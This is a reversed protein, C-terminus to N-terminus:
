TKRLHVVRDRGAYDKIIDIFEYKGDHDPGLFLEQVQEAQQAGIELFADGKPCLLSPLIDRIRAISELGSVGGDLALHPEYRSVEPELVTCIEKQRIYPPNSVILSFPEDPCFCSGMDGRVLHVQASVGHRRCNKAAVELAARSIDLAIVEAGLERALIVAIVGSGSGLDLYRRKKVAPNKRSLAMELLFETEPRPILVDPSVHFPLSWFEREGTIYAVPERAIRRNLLTQFINAQDKKISDRASLYLETRTKGLCFGLLLEADIRPEVIGATELKSITRQLIDAIRRRDSAGSM